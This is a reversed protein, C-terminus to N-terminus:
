RPRLRQPVRRPVVSAALAERDLFRTRDKEEGVCVRFKLQPQLLSSPMIAAGLCPRRADIVYRTGVSMAVDNVGPSTDSKRALKECNSLFPSPVMSTASSACTSECSPSVTPRSLILLMIASTSMSPDCVTSKPSNQWTIFFMRSPLWSAANWATAWFAALTKWRWPAPPACCENLSSSFIANVSCTFLHRPSSGTMPGRSGSSGFEMSRKAPQPSPSSSQLSMLMATGSVTSSRASLLRSLM